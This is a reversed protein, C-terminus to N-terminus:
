ANKGLDTFQEPRQQQAHIIAIQIRKVEQRESRPLRRLFSTSAPILKLSHDFRNIGTCKLCISIDGPRPPSAHTLGSACDTVYGCHPCQTAPTRTIKMKPPIPGHKMFTLVRGASAPRATDRWREILPILEAIANV